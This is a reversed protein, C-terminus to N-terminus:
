QKEHVIGIKVKGVPRHVMRLEEREEMAHVVLREVGRGPGRERKREAFREHERRKQRQRHKHDWHMRHHQEDEQAHHGDHPDDIMGSVLKEGRAKVAIRDALPDDPCGIVEHVVPLHLIIERQIKRKPVVPQPSRIRLKMREVILQLRALQLGQVTRRSARRRAFTDNM